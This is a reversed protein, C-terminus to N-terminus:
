ENRVERKLLFLCPAVNRKRQWTSVVIYKFDKLVAYIEEETKPNQYKQEIRAIEKAIRRHMDDPTKEYINGMSDKLAYKNIWVNAALEDGNFYEIAGAVAEEYTFTQSKVENELITTGKTSKKTM